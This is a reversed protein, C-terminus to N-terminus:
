NQPILNWLWFGGVTLTIALAWLLFYELFAQTETLTVNYVMQHLKTMIGITIGVSMLFYGLRNKIM